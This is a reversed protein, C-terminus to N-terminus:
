LTKFKRLRVGRCHSDNVKVRLRQCLNNDSVVSQELIIDKIQKLILLRLVLYNM